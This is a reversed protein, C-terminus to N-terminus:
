AKQASQSFTKIAKSVEECLESMETESYGTAEACYPSIEEVHPGDQLGCGIRLVVINALYAIVALLPRGDTSDPHHHFGIALILEQPFNWRDAIRSGVEAHDVGLVEHEAELTIFNGKSLEILQGRNEKVFKGLVIKGVDHLLGATYASDALGPRLKRSLIQSGIACGLSHESLGNKTFSYASLDQRAYISDMTTTLVMNRVTQFGLYM